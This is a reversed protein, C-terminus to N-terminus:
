FPCFSTVKVPLAGRIRKPPFCGPTFYKPMSTTALDAIIFYAFATAFCLFHGCTRVFSRSLVSDCLIPSILRSYLLVVYYYKRAM